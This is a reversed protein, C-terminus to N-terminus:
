ILFMNICHWPNRLLLFFFFFFFGQEVIAMKWRHPALRGGFSFKTSFYKRCGIPLPLFRKEASFSYTTSPVFVDYIQWELTRITKYFEISTSFCCDLRSQISVIFLSFGQVCGWIYVGTKLMAGQNEWTVKRVFSFQELWCCNSVFSDGNLNTELDRTKNVVHGQKFSQFHHQRKVVM